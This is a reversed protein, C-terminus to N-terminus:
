RNTARLVPAGALRAVSAIGQQQIGALALDADFWGNSQSIVVDPRDLLTRWHPWWLLDEYCLSMAARRGAITLYPEGIDGRIASTQAGPRWLAVPVPQRSDSRSRGAGAVVTSDTYRFPKTSVGLDVGIVLTQGAARMREIDPRWWLAMAPRWLGAIEEPLIVVSAGGAFAGQVITRLRLTRAYISPYSSQDFRGLATNVAMWRAPAAPPARQLHSCTSLVALLACALWAGPSSQPMTVVCLAAVGLAMGALQWGPYLASAVHLPSLWGIIGIPPATVIMSALATRWAHSMASTASGPKLITWPLALVIGQLLWFAIGLAFGTPPTLEHYGAFFRECVVPIDRAGTLYYTAWMTFGARRGRLKSWAAPLGILVLAFHGPYWALIAVVIGTAAALVYHGLSTRLPRLIVARLSSLLPINQMVTLVRCSSSAVNTDGNRIASSATRVIAHDDADSITRTHLSM